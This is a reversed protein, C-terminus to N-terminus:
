RIAMKLRRGSPYNFLSVRNGSPYGVVIRNNVQDFAFVMSTGGGAVDGLVSNSPSIEGMTGSVGDGYTVAGANVSAGKDWHSSNLVYDGNALATVGGDEIGVWDCETSGVLSNAASVTGTVGNVGSGWTVAGVDALRGSNWNRSSVVFNGNALATLGGCAGKENGMSGVQDNKQSGVLSNVASISGTVGATGNGWTVAGADIVVGNDWYPSRVVYNGNTLAIVDIEYYHGFSRNYSGILDTSTSGVLSNAASVLGTVGNIGSGWTVAGAHAASGNRYYPSLVVYNGNALAVGSIGVNDGAKGVLSNAASVMGTVGCSGNGWTAAGANAATGNDWYPSFVVYNGNALAVGINRGVADKAKSGILSNAASVVGTVGSMGSGWTVAGVDSVKGNDWEPSCVVYNGNALGWCSFYKGVGVLSNAASLTGTVGTTGCGWTAAGAHTADGNNWEPSCVVYNGNALRLCDDRGIKDNDTSGVLSNATSVTGTLGSMGNCWTVAGANTVTGNSWYTSTVVYNGNALAKVSYGSRIGHGVMDYAQSGVLSNAASMMGTVGVTGSCWTVAGVHPVAGNSWHCCNVVYNGNNLPTVFSVMERAASGVLSNAASVAGTVGATGSGWTVAGALSISGNAWYPSRVVYNGNALAEVGFLGVRDNTTSGVLSNDASVTGNVGATGSGWTVAGAKIAVGNAWYPSILVFNGNVLAKVGGFTGGCIQDNATSGTLKSILALTAGDYLYVAGVNTPGGPISYSPDTVVFNGNSLVTVSSGFAGSGAPGSLDIQAARVFHGATLLLMSVTWGVVERGYQSKM